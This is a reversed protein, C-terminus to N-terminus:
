IARVFRRSTNAAPSIAYRSRRTKLKRHETKLSDCYAVAPEMQVRGSTTFSHLSTSTARRQHINHGARLVFSHRGASGVSSSNFEIRLSALPRFSFRTRRDLMEHNM